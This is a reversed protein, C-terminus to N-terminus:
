IINSYHFDGDFDIQKLRYYYKGPEAQQDKFEYIQPQQTTGKGPVFGIRKFTGNDCARQIEFGYNNSETATQWNLRVLGDIQECYFLSLEVPDAVNRPMLSFQDPLRGNPVYIQVQVSDDNVIFNALSNHYDTEILQALNIHWVNQIYQRLYSHTHGCLYATVQYKSLMAWFRDRDEPTRDLCDGYNRQWGKPYAPEHGVVFIYRYPNDVLQNELWRLQKDIVNGYNRYRVHSYQDLIIFYANDYAFAYCLAEVGEAEILTSDVLFPLKKASYYFDYFYQRDPDKDHNGMAPFFPKGFYTTVLYDVGSFPEYDGAHILFSPAPNTLSSAAWQLAVPLGNGGHTDSIGLFSWDDAYIGTGAVCCILVGILVYNTHRTM